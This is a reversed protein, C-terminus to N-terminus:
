GELLRYATLGFPRMGLEEGAEQLCDWLYEGYESTFLLEYGPLQGRDHRVVLVPTAALPVPACSLNRFSAERLDLDTVRRLVAAAQPGCLLLNGLGSTRETAHQCGSLLQGEQLRMLVPHEEGDSVLLARHRSIRAAYGFPASPLPVVRGPEPVPGELLLELLQDVEKGKLEWKCTFSRDLLGVGERVATVEQQPDTFHTACCWHSLTEMVGGREVLKHHLPSRKVPTWQTTM